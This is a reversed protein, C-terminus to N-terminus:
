RRRRRCPWSASSRWRYRGVVRRTAASDSWPWCGRRARAPASRRTETTDYVEYAWRKLAEDLDALTWVAHRAPDQGRTLQRPQPTLRTTGILNHVFQTNSTGFLREAVSGHRAAARPRHRIAMGRAGALTEFAQSRFEPGGDVVILDPLRGWRRVCELLVLYCSRYSPEDYTLSVALLRRTFADTLFTAYPRGLPQGTRSHVLEIDLPTHDIHCVQWPREGHRPTTLELEWCFAAEQYAVRPGHRRATRETTVSRKLFRRWTRYSPCTLDREACRAALVGYAALMTAARGLRHGPDARARTWYVTDAVEQMLTTVMTPLHQQSHNGRRGPLLGLYGWGSAQEAHKWRRVWENRTSAPVSCRGDSTGALAQAVVPLRRNAEALDEPSAQLLQRRGEPSLHHQGESLQLEHSRLLAALWDLEVALAGGDESRLVAVSTTRQALMWHHGQWDLTAGVPLDAPALPLSPCLGAREQQLTWAARSAADRVVAVREPECLRAARLDVTLEGHAILADILETSAGRQRAHGLLDRLMLGPEQRVLDLIEALAPSALDPAPAQFADALLDLNSLLTWDVERRSHLRYWLGHSAACREGPPCRWRGDPQRQYREPAAEALAALEDASRCEVFGAGDARIVLFDPVMEVAARRGSRTTYHLHLVTPLDYYELVEADHELEYAMPLADLRSRCQVVLGMKRSPFRVPGTRPTARLRRVPEAARLAALFAAQSPSLACAQSWAQFAPEDLPM